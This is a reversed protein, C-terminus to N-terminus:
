KGKPNEIAPGFIVFTSYESDHWALMKGAKLAELHEEELMILDSGFGHGYNNAAEDTADLISIGENPDTWFSFKM